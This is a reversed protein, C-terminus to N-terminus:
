RVEGRRKCATPSANSYHERAPRCPSPKPAPGSCRSRTCRRDAKSLYHKDTFMDEISIDGPLGLADGLLVTSSRTGKFQPDMQDAGEGRGSTRQRRVRVNGRSGLGQGILFSVVYPMGAPDDAALLTIDESLGVRGSRELLIRSASLIAYADPGAVVLNKEAALQHQSAKMGLAAQM